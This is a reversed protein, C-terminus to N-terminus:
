GCFWRPHTHTSLRETTDLDKHDWSSYGALSRQGHSEGPLFVPTPHWKRRWPIKGAWPHLGLKKCRRCQCAPEKGSPWRPFGKKIWEDISPCKPQKCTKAITFLAATFVTHTCHMHKKEFQLKRQIYARSHSQQIM